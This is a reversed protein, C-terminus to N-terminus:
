MKFKKPVFSLFDMAIFPFDARLADVGRRLLHAQFLMPRPRGEGVIGGSARCPFFNPKSRLFSVWSVMKSAGSAREGHRIEPSKKKTRDL